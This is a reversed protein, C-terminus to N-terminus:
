GNRVLIQQIESYGIRQVRSYILPVLDEDRHNFRFSIEGLYLHFFKRPVGRYPYLWHKAYSWFGEIGNIHARGKPKGAEKRVVIHDGRVALSGYAHWDDTYYLSGPKTHSRVLRILEEGGRGQVPFVRVQGNRQLIGFVIIKGAAGWGRKGARQGGFMTEDCEVAGRFAERCEEDLALTARVLRFFREIAPISVSLRFRMRYVPVGLVFFELLRKKSAESLRSADWVRIWRYKRGCRRCKFRGDALHWAWTYICKPCQRMVLGNYM